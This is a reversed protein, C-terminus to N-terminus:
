PDVLQVIRSRDIIYTKRVKILTYKGTPFDMWSPDKPTKPFREKKEGEGFYVFDPNGLLAVKEGLSGHLVRMVLGDSTEFLFYHEKDAASINFSFIFFLLIFTKM